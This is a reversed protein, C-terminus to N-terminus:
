AGAPAPSSERPPGHRVMVVILWGLLTGNLIHWLFHTGIGTAACIAGTQDDLTRFTLSLALLGAAIALGEAGNRKRWHLGAAYACLVLFTPVYAMSGNLSGLLPTLVSGVAASVPFFAVVALGGAWRPLEWLRVTALYLYTVIFILIPLVDAAAAWGTAFTHFLFSGIGIATLIAVLARVAWDGDRGAAQAARWAAYAGILFAANTLANVPEAWFAADLRECYSDIQRTAASWFGADTEPDM